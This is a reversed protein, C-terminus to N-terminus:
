QEVGEIIIKSAGWKDAPIILEENKGNPFSLIVNNSGFGFGDFKKLSKPLNITCDTTVDFLRGIEEVGEPFPIDAATLGSYVFVDQGITKPAGEFIVKELSTCGLFAGYGINEVKSPITVSKLNDFHSLPCSSMSENDISRLEDPLHLTEVDVFAISQNKIQEINDAFILNKVGSVVLWVDSDAELMGDYINEILSVSVVNKGEIKDPIILTDNALKLTITDYDFGKGLNIATKKESKKGRLDIGTIEINGDENTAYIWKVTDQATGSFQALYEDLSSYEKGNITIPNNGLNEEQAKANKYGNAAKEATNILNSKVIFNVSVAVLVLMVIITIILAVLTIGQNRKM